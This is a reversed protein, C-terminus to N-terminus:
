ADTDEGRSAFVAEPNFSNDFDTDFREIADNVLPPNTERPIWTATLPNEAVILVIGVDNLSAFQYSPKTDLRIRVSLKWGKERWERYPIARRKYVGDDMLSEKQLLTRIEVGKSLLQNGWEQRNLKTEMEPNVWDLVFRIIDGKRAKGYIERDILWYVNETGFAYRPRVEPKSGTMEQILSTTLENLDIEMLAKQISSLDEKEEELELVRSKKIDEITQKIRQFDSWYENRYGVRNVEIFGSDELNTLNRYILPKKGPHKGEIERLRRYIEDFTTPNGTEEQLLLLSALIRMRKETIDIGLEELITDTFVENTM